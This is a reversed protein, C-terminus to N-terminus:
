VMHNLQIKLKLKQLKLSNEISSNNIRGEKVLKELAIKAVERRIPHHSSLLVQCPTEDVIVDVGSLREFIRINRGEKGIIRGKIDDSPLEITSVTYHEVIGTSIKQLSSAIIKKSIQESQEKTDKEIIAIDRISQNKVEELLSLKLEKKAEEISYSGIAELRKNLEQQKLNLEKTKKQYYNEIDKRSTERYEKEDKEARWLIERAEKEAKDLLLKRRELANEDQEKYINKYVTVATKWGLVMCALALALIYFSGPYIM